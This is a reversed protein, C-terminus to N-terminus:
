ANGESHMLRKSRVLGMSCPMWQSGLTAVGMAVMEKILAVMPQEMSWRKRQFMVVKWAM